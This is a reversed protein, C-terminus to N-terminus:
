KKGKKKNVSYYGRKLVPKNYEFELGMAEMLADLKANLIAVDTMDDVLAPEVLVPKGYNVGLGQSDLLDQIEKPIFM